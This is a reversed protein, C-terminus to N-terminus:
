DEGRHSGHPQSPNVLWARAEALDLIARANVRASEGPTALEGIAEEIAEIVEAKGM